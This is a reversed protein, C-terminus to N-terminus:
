LFPKIIIMLYIIVGIHVIMSYLHEIKGYCVLYLNRLALIVAILFIFTFLYLDGLGPGHVGGPLYNNLLMAIGGLVIYLLFTKLLNRIGAKEFIRM